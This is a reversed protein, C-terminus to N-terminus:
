VAAPALGRIPLLPGRHRRRKAVFQLDCIEPESAATIRFESIRAGGRNREFRSMGGMM